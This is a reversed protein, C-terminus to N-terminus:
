RCGLHHVVPVQLFASHLGPLAMEQRGETSRFKQLALLVLLASDAELCAASVESIPLNEVAHELHYEKMGIVSWPGNAVSDLLQLGAVSHQALSSDFPDRAAM